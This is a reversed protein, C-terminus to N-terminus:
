RAAWCRDFWNNEPANRFAPDNVAELNFPAYMEGGGPQTELWIKEYGGGEVLVLDGGFRNLNSRCKRVAQCRGLYLSFIHLFVVLSRESDFLRM